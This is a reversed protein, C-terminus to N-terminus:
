FEEKYYQRTDSLTSFTLRYFFIFVNFLLINQLLSVNLTPNHIKKFRRGRRLQSAQRM